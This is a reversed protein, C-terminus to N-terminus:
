AAAPTGEAHPGAKDKIDLLSGRKVEMGEQDAQQKKEPRAYGILDGARLIAALTEQIASSWRKCGALNVDGNAELVGTGVDHWLLNFVLWHVCTWGESDQADVRAGLTYILASLQQLHDTPKLPSPHSSAFEGAVGNPRSIEISALQETCM